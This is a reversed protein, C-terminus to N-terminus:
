NNLAALLLQAVFGEMENGLSVMNVSQDITGEHLLQSRKNYADTFFRVSSQGGFMKKPILHNTLSRGAEGISQYKLRSLQGIISQKTTIGITSQEVKTEFERVLNQVEMPRTSQDSLAEVATVLTVFRSRPSVDFFSSTYIESALLLKESVLRASLYERSFTNILKQSAKGVIANMNFSVFKLNDLHEYIDIGHLDNRLPCGYKAQLFKLGADTVVSRPIGDGFDIGVRQEIAWYLIAQKSKEAVSRAQSESDFPGGIIAVQPHAKIPEGIAGSRLRIHEGTELVLLELEEADSEIRYSKPLNFRLRFDYFAM